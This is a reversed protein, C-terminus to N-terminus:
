PYFGALKFAQGADATEAYLRRPGQSDIQVTLSQGGDLIGQSELSIIHDPGERVKLQYNRLSVDSHGIVTGISATLEMGAAPHLAEIPKEPKDGLSLLSRFLDKADF